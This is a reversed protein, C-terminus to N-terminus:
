PQGEYNFTYIKNCIRLAESAYKKIDQQGFFTCYSGTDNVKWFDCVLWGCSDYCHGGCKVIKTKSVPPTITEFACRTM